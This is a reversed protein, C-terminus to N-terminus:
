TAAADRRRPTAAIAAALPVPLGSAYLRRAAAALTLGTTVVDDVLVPTAGAAVARRVAAVRRPVAVFAHAALREREARSLGASDPRPRARLPYAVGAPWGQARLRGAARRALRTMHDGYRRRVATATAPVPILV